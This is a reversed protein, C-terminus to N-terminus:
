SGFARSATSRSSTFRGAAALHRHQRRPRHCTSIVANRLAHRVLVRREPLGKSRATTAYDSELVELLSARLSHPRALDSLARAAVTLSAPVDLAPAFLVRLWGGVPFLRGLNLAFLLLLMIGVWFSPIGLGVLPVARM